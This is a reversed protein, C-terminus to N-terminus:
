TVRNPIYRLLTVNGKTKDKTIGTIQVDWNSSIKSTGQINLVTQFAAYGIAMLLVISSLGIIIINRNKTRRSM